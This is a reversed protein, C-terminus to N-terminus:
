SGGDKLAIVAQALKAAAEGAKVLLEDFGKPVAGTAHLSVIASKLAAHLKLTADQAAIPADCTKGIEAKRAEDQAANAEKMPETCKERLVPRAEEATIALTDATFIAAQMKSGCGFLFAVCIIAAVPAGVLRAWGRRLLRGFWEQTVIAAGSALLGNQFAEFWPTGSAMKEVIAGLQGLVFAILPVFDEPIKGYPTKPHKIFATAAWVFAALISLMTPRAALNEGLERGGPEIIPTEAYAAIPILLSILFALAVIVSLRIRNM